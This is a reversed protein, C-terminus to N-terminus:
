KSKKGKKTKARYAKGVAIIPILEKHNPVHVNTFRLLWRSHERALEKIADLQSTVEETAVHVCGGLMQLETVRNQTSLAM